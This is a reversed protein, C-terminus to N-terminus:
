RLRLHRQQAHLTPILAELRAIRDPTMPHDSLFPNAAPKGDAQARQDADLKQLATEMAQPPYHANLLFQAGLADADYEEQQSYKLGQVMSYLLSIKASDRGYTKAAYSALAAAQMNRQLRALWHSLALHAVEHAIIAASEAETLKLRDLGSYLFINGKPSTAANALASKLVYFHLNFFFTNGTGRVIQSGIYRIKGSAPGVKDHNKNLYAWLFAHDVNAQLVRYKAMEQATAMRAAGRAPLLALLAAATLAAPRLRM